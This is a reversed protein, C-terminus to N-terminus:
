LILVSMNKRQGDQLMTVRLTVTCGFIPWFHDKRTLTGGLLSFKKTDEKLDKTLVIINRTEFKESKHNALVAFFYSNEANPGIPGRQGVVQKPIM